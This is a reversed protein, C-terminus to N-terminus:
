RTESQAHHMMVLEQLRDMFITPRRIADYETVPKWGERSLQRMRSERVWALKHGKSKLDKVVPESEADQLLDFRVVKPERWEKSAEYFTGVLGVLDIM